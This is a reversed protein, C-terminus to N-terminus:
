KLYRGVIWLFALIAMVAAIAISGVGIVLNADNAQYSIVKGYRLANVFHECNQKLLNYYVKRGISQKAKNIIEDVPSADFMTDSRNNVYCPDGRTAETLPERKIVAVNTSSSFRFSVGGSAGDSTLHVVDGHGIYLAWHTYINGPIEILDGPKAENVPQRFLNFIQILLRFHM